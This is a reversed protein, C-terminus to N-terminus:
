LVEKIRGSGIRKRKANYQAAFFAAANADGITQAVFAAVGYPMVDATVRVPFFTIEENVDFQDPLVRDPEHLFWLDICVTEFATQAAKQFREDSTNGVEDSLGLMSLARDIVYRGTM